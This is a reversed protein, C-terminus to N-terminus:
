KHAQPWGDLKMGLSLGMTALIEKIENLSKRGFNKTKLMEIETKQVLEGISRINANKLCNYSRVSLEMEDVSKALREYLVGREEDSVEVPVSPEGDEDEDEEDLNIFIQLHDKMLKAALGVADRPSVAGNTWVEITLKEYDTAQGVRAQEVFYNVKKVPSHVSDLPIWGISLDEDFNKDASVYGRGHKVRLEVALTSGAGLTAIYAEPDLVEIDADPTIHKARVEGPESTRLTLMKPHDVHMKLPVRKLNLILDTTDEMAGPIPSFEHLVGEVRVATVAAGEISSLLVRRLSNGVTTAFGREFPQASFRGYHDTATDHDAELRKPKQFGKWLM